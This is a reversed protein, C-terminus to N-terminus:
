ARKLVRSRVQEHEIGQGAQLSALAQILGDEEDTSLSPQQDLPEVVYRGAPLHRLAEPVDSGNWDIVAMDSIVDNQGLSGGIPSEIRM